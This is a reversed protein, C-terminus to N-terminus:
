VYQRKLHLRRIRTLYQTIRIYRQKCKQIIFRACKCVCLVWQTVTFVVSVHGM